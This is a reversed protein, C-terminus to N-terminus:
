ETGSGELGADGDPPQKPTAATAATAWDYDLGMLRGYDDTGLLENLRDRALQPLKELDERVSKCRRERQERHNEWGKTTKTFRLRSEREKSTESRFYAVRCLIKQGIHDFCRELHIKVDIYAVGRGANITYEKATGDRLFVNMEACWKCETEQDCTGVEDPRAWNQPPPLEEGVGWVICAKALSRFCSRADQSFTDLSLALSGMLPTLYYAMYVSTERAQSVQMQLRRLLRSPAESDKGCAEAFNYFDLFPGPRTYRNSKPASGSCAVDHFKDGLYDRYSKYDFVSIADSLLRSLVRRVFEGRVCNPDRLEIFLNTVLATIFSGFERFIDLLHEVAEELQKRQDEAQRAPVDLIVESLCDVDAFSPVEFADAKALVDLLRCSYWQKMHKMKAPDKRGSNGACFGDYLQTLGRHCRALSDGKTIATAVDDTNVWTGQLNALGGLAFWSEDNWAALTLGVAKGFLSRDVLKAAVVAVVGLLADKQDAALKFGVVNHCLQLLAGKSSMPTDRSEKGVRKDLTERLHATLKCFHTDLFTEEYQVDKALEWKHTCSFSHRGRDAYSIERLLNVDSLLGATRKPQCLPIGDLNRIECLARSERVGGDEVERKMRVQDLLLSLKGDKACGKRVCLARQYDRGRLNALDVSGPTYRHQLPYILFKPGDQLEHWVQLAKAVRATQADMASASPKYSCGANNILKYELVWQYGTQIEDMGYLVDPLWAIHSCSFASTDASSLNITMKGHRFHATGGTHPSPLCIVLWGFMGEMDVTGAQAKVTAGRGYLLSRSLKARIGPKGDAGPVGIEWAARKAVRDVFGPWAPNQITINEADIVSVADDIATEVSADSLAELARADEARLPLSM